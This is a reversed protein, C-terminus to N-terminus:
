ARKLSTIDSEGPDVIALASVMHPKGCAKGLQVEPKDIDQLEAPKRVNKGSCAAVALTAGILLAVALPRRRLAATM